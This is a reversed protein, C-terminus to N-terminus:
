KLHSPHTSTIWFKIIMCQRTVEYVFQVMSFLGNFSVRFWVMRHVYSLLLFFFFDSM